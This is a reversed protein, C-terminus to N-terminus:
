WYYTNGRPNHKNDVYDDKISQFSLSDFPFDIKELSMILRCYTVNKDELKNKINKADALYNNLKEMLDKDKSEIGKTLWFMRKETYDIEMKVYCTDLQKLNKGRKQRKKHIDFKSFFITSENYYIPTLDDGQNDRFDNLQILILILIVIKM